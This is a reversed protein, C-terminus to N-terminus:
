RKLNMLKMIFKPPPKMGLQEMSAFSDPIGWLENIKGERFHMIDLVTIENKRCAPPM